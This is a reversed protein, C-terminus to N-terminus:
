SSPPKCQPEKVPPPIEFRGAVAKEINSWFLDVCAECLEVPVDKLRSKRKSEAAPDAAGSVTVRYEQAVTHVNKCIDCIRM